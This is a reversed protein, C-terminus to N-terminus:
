ITSTVIEIRTIDNFGSSGLDILVPTFADGRGFMNLTTTYTRNQFISVQAIVTSNDAGVVYFKLNNVPSTFDVYLPAYGHPQV